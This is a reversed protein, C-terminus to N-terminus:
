TRELIPGNWKYRRKLGNLQNYDLDGRHQLQGAMIGPGVGAKKSLRVVDRASIRGPPLEAQLDAPYLIEEAFIDAENEVASSAGSAHSLEDVFVVKSDHLLLHGAEHFFTFWLHDDTLYRGSLVILPKQPTLFRAVGSAPCGEPARLAVLAVGSEACLAKLAPLFRSPDRERTLSKADDLSSRFRMPNWAPCDTGRAEIEAQRLWVAVSATNTRVSSSIRFRADLLLKGYSAQWADLDPVDFYDLCATIQDQWSSSKGLWGFRHMDKTPLTSAWRDAAVRVVDDQYQAERSMWFELSAGISSALKRALSLSIVEHGELLATTVRPSLDMMAAFDNFSIDRERLADKITDGPPSAWRPAFSTASLM